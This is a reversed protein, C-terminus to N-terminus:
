AEQEVSFREGSLGPNHTVLTCGSRVRRKKEATVQECNVRARKLDERATIIKGKRKTNQTNFCPFCTNMTQFCLQYLYAGIFGQLTTSTGCRTSDESIKNQEFGKKRFTAM